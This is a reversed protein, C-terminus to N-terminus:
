FRILEGLDDFYYGAYVVVVAGIGTVLLSFLLSLGDLYLSLTLGLRPVWSFSIQVTGTHQVVPLNLWLGTFLIIMVLALLWALVTKRLRTGVVPMLFALAFPTVNVIAVDM